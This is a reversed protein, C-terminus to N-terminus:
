VKSVELKQLTDRDKTQAIESLKDWQEATLSEINYKELVDEKSDQEIDPNAGSSHSPVKLDTLKAIEGDLNIENVQFDSYRYLFKTIM